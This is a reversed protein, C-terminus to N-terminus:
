GKELTETLDDLQEYERLFENKDDVIKKWMNMLIFIRIFIMSFKALDNFKECEGLYETIEDVTKESM